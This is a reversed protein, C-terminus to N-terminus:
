RVTGELLFRASALGGGPEATDQVLVARLPDLRLGPEAALSALYRELAQPSLGDGTRAVGEVKFRFGLGDGPTQAIEVRGLDVGAPVQFIRLGLRELQEASRKQRHEAWRLRLLGFRQRAATDGEQVLPRREALAAEAKAAQRELGTEQRVLAAKAGAGLAVMGALSARVVSRFVARSRAQRVEEPVLDLGGKRRRERGIGEALFRDPDPGLDELALGLARAADAM